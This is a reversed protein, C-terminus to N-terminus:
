VRLSDCGRQAVVSRGASKAASSPRRRFLLRLRPPKRRDSRPARGRPRGHLRSRRRRPLRKRQLKPPLHRGPRPRRPLKPERPVLLHEGARRNGM